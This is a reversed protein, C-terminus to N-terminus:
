MARPLLGIAHITGEVSTMTAAAAGITEATADQSAGLRNPVARLLSGHRVAPATRFRTRREISATTEQEGM